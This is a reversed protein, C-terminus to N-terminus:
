EEMMDLEKMKKERLERLSQDTGKLILYRYLNVHSWGTVIKAYALFTMVKGQYEVENEGIITAEESPKKKFFVVDGPKIIGQEMMWDTRPLEARKRIEEAEEEEAKEDETPKVRVPSTIVSGFWAIDELLDYADKPNMAYFERKRTKGNFSEISRLTPNLRDIIKHIRLDTLRGNTKCYAYLRFAYPVCESKNLQKLREAIDDAYGIKIFNPFSPNTLIYIYGENKM